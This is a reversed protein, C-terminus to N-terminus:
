VSMRWTGQTGKDDYKRSTVWLFDSGDLLVRLNIGHQNQGFENLNVKVIMAPFTEGDRVANGLQRGDRRQRQIENVDRMGLTYLVIQGLQLQM